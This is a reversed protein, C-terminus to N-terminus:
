KKRRTATRKKKVVTRRPKRRAVPKAAVRKAAKRKVATKRRVPARRSAARKPRSAKRRAAKKRPKPQAAATTSQWRGPETRRSATSAPTFSFADSAAMATEIGNANTRGHTEATNNTHTTSIQSTGSRRM